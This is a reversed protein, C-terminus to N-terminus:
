LRNNGSFFQFKLKKKMPNRMFFPDSHSLGGNFNKDFFNWPGITYAGNSFNSFNLIRIKVIERSNMCTWPWNKIDWLVEHHRIYQMSFKPIKKFKTSIIGHFFINKEVNNKWNERFWTQYWGFQKVGFLRLHGWIVWNLYKRAWLKHGYHM